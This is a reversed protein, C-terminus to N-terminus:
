CWDADSYFRQSVVEVENRVLKVEAPSLIGKWSDISARSDRKTFAAAGDAAKAPNAPDSFDQVVSRVHDTYELGLADYIAGFQTVPDRALDEYRLFLWDEHADMYQCGVHYLLKWFLAAQEVAGRTHEVYDRMQEAFPSLYREMLLPQGLLDGFPCRWDLRKVSGAFAAPHRILVVVNMDFRQALWEASFFAIPDKLLPTKGQQRHRRFQISQGLLMRLGGWSRVEKLGEILGFELRMMKELGRRYPASNEDSLYTFWQPFQVGCIARGPPRDVSFPEHIYVVEPSGAIMKGVWTSGSRHSGTVLIPHLQVPQISGTGAAPVREIM